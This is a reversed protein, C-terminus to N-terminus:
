HVTVLGIICLSVYMKAGCCHHDQSDKTHQMDTALLFPQHSVVLKKLDTKMCQLNVLKGVLAAM